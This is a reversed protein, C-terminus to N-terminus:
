LKKMANFVLRAVEKGGATQFHTNDKQGNPFAPYLGAEFNMFYNQTVYEQGKRSFFEMSLENLDILKVNLEKAVDKAAQPYEGHVNSLKGEKWPYNRAVPTMVIPTAGKERTQNIFLRLFEKYGEINVYRETKEESSDNHGFQMMVVDGKQLSKYVSAWRGEQFFTRTSRGGKAMDDVKVEKANGLINKVLKLSDKEFFPQFVQGWGVQPFRKSEYEKELSYDAVTSDGILYITTVKSKFSFASLIMISFLVITAVKYNNM